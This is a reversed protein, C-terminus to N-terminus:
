DPLVLVSCPAQHVLSQEVRPRLFSTRDNRSWGVVALDFKRSAALMRRVPNGTLRTVEAMLGYSRALEVAGELAGDISGAYRPGAVFDPPNAVVVTLSADLMRAIDIALVTAGSDLEPDSIALMIRRYPHTGRAVLTPVNLGQLRRLFGSGKFGSRTMWGDAPPPLVLLGLDLEDLRPAIPGIGLKEVVTQRLDASPDSFQRKVAELDLADASEELFEIFGAHTSGLLYEVEHAVPSKSGPSVVGIGTGYPLPFESHGTSLFRAICPLISPDGVLLVRDGKEFRTEGHPVVLTNERYVAAVLWRHPSLLSLPKDIVSSNPMIETEIIEGAGLGVDSAVRSGRTVRGILTGTVAKFDHVYPIKLEDFEASMEAQRLLALLRPITFDRRLIRGAELAVSDPRTTLVVADALAAGAQELQLRSTADGDHFAINDIVGYAALATRAPGTDLDMVTVQWGDALRRALEVGVDGGGIILLRQNEGGGLRCYNQPM